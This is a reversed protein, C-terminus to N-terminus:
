WVEVGIGGRERGAHQRLAKAWFRDCHSDESEGAFRINGSLTVEKKIGRLDSRLKDDRVLRLRLDEFDARLGFALEEKAQATFTIPEVKWGFRERAQESLQMGLGNADICCRKVQPLRLLRYLEFEIESFTKNHLEIRLRDWMVDGIKEGLDLVCLDKKRAVDVGLYLSSHRTDPASFPSSSSFSHRHAEEGRGEGGPSSLSSVIENFAMLHLSPDECSGIMDYSIFASSEDAPICCYEQDWQEKDICEAETRQLFAQRSESRGTKKNIREVLGQEVALHIQVTHLSWGMPNGSELIDRIIQTFVTGVGRHTSIISLQGGWQTVPKAVRYLLRQDQHLAFEDLKVHGRKGALANPSSSLCYIRRGNAFQLVYASTSNNHDLVLEGLDTAALHLFVAWYKCDELYLKAQAQDRSSIWVDLRAGVASAKLVSDYADAYTVGVQRSKQIIKLPLNDLIWRRQYPLFYKQIPNM